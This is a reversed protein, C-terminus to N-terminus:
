IHIWIVYLYGNGLHVISFDIFTMLAAVGGTVMIHYGSTLFIVFLADLKTDYALVASKPFCLHECSVSFHFYFIYLIGKSILHFYNCM